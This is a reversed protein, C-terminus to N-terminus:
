RQDGQLALRQARERERESNTRCLLLHFLVKLDSSLSKHGTEVHIQNNTKVGSGRKPVWHVFVGLWSARTIIAGYMNQDLPYPSAPILTKKHTYYIYTHCFYPPPPYNTCALRKEKVPVSPLLFDFCGKFMCDLKPCTSSNAHTTTQMLITYICLFLSIM